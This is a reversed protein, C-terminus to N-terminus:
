REEEEDHLKIYHKNNYQMKTRENEYTEILSRSSKKRERDKKTDNDGKTSKEVKSVRQAKKIRDVRETEMRANVDRSGEIGRM